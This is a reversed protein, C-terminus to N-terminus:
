LGRLYAMLADLEEDTMQWRPMYYHLPTGDHRLGKTIATRVSEEDYGGAILIAWRVPPASGTVDGAKATLGEGRRGHCVVCGGDVFALWEPGETYKLPGNIGEAREYIARGPSVGSDSCGHLLPLLPVALMGFFLCVLRM